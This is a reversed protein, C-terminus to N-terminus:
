PFPRVSIVRLPVYIEREDEESDGLRCEFTVMGLDGTVSVTSTVSKRASAINTAARNDLLGLFDTFVREDCDSSLRNICLM